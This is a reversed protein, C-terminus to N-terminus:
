LVLSALTQAGLFVYVAAGLGYSLARWPQLEYIFSVAHVVRCVLYVFHLMPSTGVLLAHLAGVAFYVSNNEIANYHLALAKDAFKFGLARRKEARESLKKGLYDEDHKFARYQFRYRTVRFSCIVQLLATITTTIAYARFAESGLLADM